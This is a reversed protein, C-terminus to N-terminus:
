NRFGRKHSQLAGSSPLTSMLILPQLQAKL